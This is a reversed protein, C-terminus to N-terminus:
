GQVAESDGGANEVAEGAAVTVTVTSIGSPQVHVAVLLKAQILTVFTLTAARVTVSLM